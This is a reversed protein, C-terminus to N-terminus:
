INFISLILNIGKYLEENSILGDGNDDFMHFIGTLFEKHEPSALYEVLM